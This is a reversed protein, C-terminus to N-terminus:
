LIKTDLCLYKAQVAVAYSPWVACLAGQNRLLKAPTGSRSFAHFNLWISDSAFGEGRLRRKGQPAGDPDL